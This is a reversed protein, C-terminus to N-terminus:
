TGRHCLQTAAVNEKRSGLYTKAVHRKCHQLDGHTWVSDKLVDKLCPQSQSPQVPLGDRSGIQSLSGQSYCTAFDVKHKSTASWVRSGASNQFMTFYYLVYYRVVRNCPDLSGFADWVHM